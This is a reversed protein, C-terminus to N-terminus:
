EQIMKRLTFAGRLDGVNFGRAKDAPYLEALKAEVAPAVEAGHCAVCLGATPIAKMYRFEGGTVQTAEMMAPDEGAKIRASFDNLVQTEWADPANDPNRIKLATRGVQWGNLSLGTAIAPAETNCVAIAAVPGDKEISGKLEGMLAQAFAKVQGRAEMTLAQQDAALASVSAMLLTAAIAPKM